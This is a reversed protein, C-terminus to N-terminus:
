TAGAASASRPTGSQNQVTPPTPFQFFSIFPPTLFYILLLLLAHTIFSKKSGVTSAKIFVFTLEAYSRLFRARCARSARSAIAVGDVRILGGRSM